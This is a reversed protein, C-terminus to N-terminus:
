AEISDSDSSGSLYESESRASDDDGLSEEDSGSLDSVEQLADVNVIAQSVEDPNEEDENVEPIEETTRVRITGHQERVNIYTASDNKTVTANEVRLQAGDTREQHIETLFRYNNEVDQLIVTHIFM